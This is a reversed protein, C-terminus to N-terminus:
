PTRMWTAGLVEVHWDERGAPSEDAPVATIDPGTGRQPSPTSRDRRPTGAPVGGSILLNRPDITPTPPATM